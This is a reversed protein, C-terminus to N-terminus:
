RHEFGMGAQVIPPAGERSEATKDPHQGEQSCRLVQKMEAEDQEPPSEKPAGDMEVWGEMGKNLLM